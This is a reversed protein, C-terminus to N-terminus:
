RLLQAILPRTKKIHELDLQMGMPAFSKTFYEYIGKVQEYPLSVTILATAGSNNTISKDAGHMLLVKVVNEHCFFAASHLPTSGDNNKLNIDAGALILMKLAVLNGFTAATILPSSGATAEKLNLDTQADIHEQVVDNYFSIIAQHIGMDPKPIEISQYHTEQEIAIESNSSVKILVFTVFILIIM